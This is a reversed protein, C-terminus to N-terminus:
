QTRLLGEAPEVGSRPVAPYHSQVGIISDHLEDIADRLCFFELSFRFQLVRNTTFFIIVRISYKQPSEREQKKLVSLLHHRKRKKKNRLLLLKKVRVYQYVTKYICGAEPVRTPSDLREKIWCCCLVSCAASCWVVM